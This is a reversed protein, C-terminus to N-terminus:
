VTAPVPEWFHHHGEEASQARDAMAMVVGAGVAASVQITEYIEAESAGMARLKELTLIVCPECKFALVLALHMLRKTKEDLVGGRHAGEYFQAFEPSRVNRRARETM